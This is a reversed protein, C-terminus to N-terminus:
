HYTAGNPFVEHTRVKQCREDFPRPFLDLAVGLREPFLDVARVDLAFNNVLAHGDRVRLTSLYTADLTCLM